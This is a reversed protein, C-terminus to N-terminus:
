LMAGEERPEEAAAAAAAGDQRNSLTKRAKAAAAAAARAVARKRATSSSQEECRQELERLRKKAKQLERHLSVSRMRSAKSAKSAKLYPHNVLRSCSPRAMVDPLVM